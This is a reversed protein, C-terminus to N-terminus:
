FIFMNLFKKMDYNMKQHIYKLKVLPIFNNNAYIHKNEYKNIFKTIM